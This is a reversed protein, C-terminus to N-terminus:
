KRQYQKSREIVLQSQVDNIMGRDVLELMEDYSCEFYHIFEDRDLNQEGVKTCNTALYAKNYAGSCGQDQYFSGLHIMEQAVYGTEELLERRAAVEYDELGDVYGAPLEVAVTDKTFVRPQVVLIVNNETTIPLIICANGEEGNKMLKERIFKEGNNLEIMYRKSTLFKGYGELLERKKVKLKEIYGQLEELKEKRM